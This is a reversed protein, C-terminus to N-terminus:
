PNENHMPVTDTIRTEEKWFDYTCYVNNAHSSPLCTAESIEIDFSIKTGIVEEPSEPCFEEDIYVPNINMKLNGADGGQTSIIHLDFPDDFLLGLAKLSYYAKGILHEEPPDWYPDDEPPLPTVHTM